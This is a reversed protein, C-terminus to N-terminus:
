VGIYIQCFSLMCKQCLSLICINKNKACHRRRRYFLSPSFSFLVTFGSKEEETGMGNKQRRRRRRRRWPPTDFCRLGGRGGRKRQLGFDAEMGVRKEEAPSQDKQLMRCAPSPPHLFPITFPLSAGEGDVCEAPSFLSPSRIGFYRWLIEGSICPLDYAAQLYAHRAERVTKRKRPFFSLFFFAGGKRGLSSSVFQSPRAFRRRKRGKGEGRVYKTFVSNRKTRDGSEWDAYGSVAIVYM